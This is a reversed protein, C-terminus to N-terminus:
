AMTEHRGCHVTQMYCYGGSLFICECSTQAPECCAGSLHLNTSVKLLCFLIYLTISSHLTWLLLDLTWILLDLAYLLITYRQHFALLICSYIPGTYIGVQALDSASTATNFM